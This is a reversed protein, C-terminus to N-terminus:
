SGAHVSDPFQVTGQSLPTFPGLEVDATCVAVPGTDGGPVAVVVHMPARRGPLLLRFASVLPCGLASTWEMGSFASGGGPLVVPDTSGPPAFHRVDLIKWHDSEVVDIAAYGQLTCAAVSLDTLV